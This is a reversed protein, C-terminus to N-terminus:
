LWEGETPDYNCIIKGDLEGTLSEELARCDRCSYRFECDTCKEVKDLNLRWFKSILQWDDMFITSLEKDRISGFSYNRLMPCPIVDGNYCIALTHGLCPHYDINDLFKYLNIPAIKGKTAIPLSSYPFATDEITFDKIINGSNLDRISEWNKGDVVLLATSNNPRISNVDNTQIIVNAENSLDNMIESSASQQHLTIYIDKFKGYAYNLINLTKGWALTLDGGIIFVEKCRLDQLEDIIEKWREASLPTGSGKWKNCGICGFSRKIGNCGCFWCDRNCTNNIELFARHFEPPEIPYLPDNMENRIGMRLKQVYIKNHYFNGLRLGKLVKLFNEDVPIPINKESSTLIETEQQNLAFIKADILDFIAGRKKGRIFYCEPNLRFYM